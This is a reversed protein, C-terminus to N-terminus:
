KLQTGTAEFCADLDGPGITQSTYGNAEVWSVTVDGLSQLTSWQDSTILKSAILAQGMTAVVPLTFDLVTQRMDMVLDVAAYAAMNPPSQESAIKIAYWAQCERLYNVAAGIDVPRNVTAVMANLQALKDDTTAGTLSPWVAILKDYYTTM